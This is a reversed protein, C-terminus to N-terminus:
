GLSKITEIDLGSIEQISELSYGKALAKRAVEMNRKEVATNIATTFDSLAMERM